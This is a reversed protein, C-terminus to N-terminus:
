QTTKKYEFNSSLHHLNFLCLARLTYAVPCPSQLVLFDLEILSLFSLPLPLPLYQGVILRAV